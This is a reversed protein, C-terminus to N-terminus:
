SSLLGAVDPGWHGAFGDRHRYACAVLRVTTCPWPAAVNYRWNQCRACHGPDAPSECHEDLIALKAEGDAVREAIAAMDSGRIPRVLCAAAFAHDDGIERRLWEVPNGCTVAGDDVGRLSVRM